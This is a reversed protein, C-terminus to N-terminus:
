TSRIIIRRLYYYCHNAETTRVRLSNEGEKLHLKIPWSDVGIPQGEDLISSPTIHPIVKKNNVDVALDNVESLHFLYNDRSGYGHLELVINDNESFRKPLEFHMEIFDSGSPNRRAFAYGMEWYYMGQSKIKEITPGYEFSEVAGQDPMYYGVTVDRCGHRILQGEDGLSVEIYVKPVYIGVIEMEPQLESISVQQPEPTQYGPVEGFSVKYTGISVEEQYVGRTVSRGDVFIEGAVPETKIRLSTPIDRVLEFSLSVLEGAKRFRVLSYTPDSEYGHKRVEFTHSGLDINDIVSNIEAAIPNGDMYIVADTENSTIFASAYQPGKERQSRAQSALSPITPKPVPASPESSEVEAIDGYRMAFESPPLSDLIVDVVATDDGSIEVPVFKTEFGAKYLAIKHEGPTINCITADTVHSSLINDIFISARPVNSRVVLVPSPQSSIIIWVVVVGVVAALGLLLYKRAEEWQARKRARSREVSKRRKEEFLKRHIWRKQGYRDIYQVYNANERYFRDEEERKVKQVEMETLQDQNLPEAGEGAVADELERHRIEEADRQIRRELERRVKQRIKEKDQESLM